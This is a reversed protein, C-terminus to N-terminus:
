LWRLITPALRRVHPDVAVHRWANTCEQKVWHIKMPNEGAGSRGLDSRNVHVAVTLLAGEVAQASQAPTAILTM